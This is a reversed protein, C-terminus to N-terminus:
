GLLRGKVEAWSAIHVYVQIYVAHRYNMLPNNGKANNEKKYRCKAAADECLSFQM